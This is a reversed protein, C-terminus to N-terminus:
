TARICNFETTARHRDRATHAVPPTRKRPHLPPVPVVVSLVSVADVPAVVSSTPVVPLLGLLGVDVVSVGVVMEVSVAVSVTVSGVASGVVPPDSVVVPPGCPTHPSPVCSSPSSHSLPASLPSMFMQLASQVLLTHPSPATPGPSPQSSPLWVLSSSQVFRHAAGVQPSPMSPTSSAHSSPLVSSVSSHVLLQVSAVQLSPKTCGVTPSSHSSPSFLPAPATHVGSHLAATHPSLKVCSPTSSHSM